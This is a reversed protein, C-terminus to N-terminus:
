ARYLDWYYAAYGGQSTNLATTYKSNDLIKLRYHTYATNNNYEFTKVEGETYGSGTGGGNENNGGNDSRIFTLTDWTGTNYFTGSTDADNSGHLEFYGFCNIHTHIALRNVAKPTAGLYIAIYAPYDSAGSHGDHAGFDNGTAKTRVSWAPAGNNTIKTAGQGQTNLQSHPMSSTNCPGFPALGADVVFWHDGNYMKVSNDTTNYYLDGGVAGSPDSSARHLKPRTKTLPMVTRDGM